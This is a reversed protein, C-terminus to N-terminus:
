LFKLSVQLILSSNMVIKFFPNSDKSLIEFDINKFILTSSNVQFHSGFVTIKSLAFNDIVGVISLNQLVNVTELSLSSNDNNNSGNFSICYNIISDNIKSISIFIDDLNEFILPETSERIHNETQTLMISSNALFFFFISLFVVKFIVNILFLKMTTFTFYM